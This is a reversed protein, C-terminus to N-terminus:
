SRAAEGSREGVEVLPMVVGGDYSVLEVGSLEGDCCVSPRACCCPSRVMSVMRWARRFVALPSKPTLCLLPVVLPPILGTAAVEVSSTGRDSGSATDLGSGAGTDISAATARFGIKPFSDM